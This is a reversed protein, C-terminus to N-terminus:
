SRRVMAQRAYETRVTVPGVLERETAHALVKPDPGVEGGDIPVLVFLKRLAGVINTAGVKGYISHKHQEISRWSIGLKAAIEKSTIGWSMLHAIEQERETLLDWATKM